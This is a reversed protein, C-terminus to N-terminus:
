SDDYIFEYPEDDDLDKVVETKYKKRKNEKLSALLIPSAMDLAKVVATDIANQMQPEEMHENREVHEVVHESEVNTTSRTQWRPTTRNTIGGVRKGIGRGAMYVFSVTYKQIQMLSQYSLVCPYQLDNIVIAVVFNTM